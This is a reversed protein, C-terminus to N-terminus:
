PPSSLRRLQAKVVGAVDLTPRESSIDDAGSRRLAEIAALRAQATAPPPELLRAVTADNDV